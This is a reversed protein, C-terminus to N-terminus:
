IVNKIKRTVCVNDNRIWKGLTQTASIYYLMVGYFYIYMINYNLTPSLRGQHILPWLVLYIIFSFLIFHLTISYYVFWMFTYRRLCIAYWELSVCGSVCSHQLARLNHDEKLCYKIHAHTHSTKLELSCKPHQSSFSKSLSSLSFSNASTQIGLIYGLMTPSGFRWFRFLWDSGQDVTLLSGSCAPHCEAWM